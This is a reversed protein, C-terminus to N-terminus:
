WSAWTILLIRKARYDFMSHLNGDLDPLTFDHAQLSLLADNRPSAGEGLLWVDSEASRVAPKGMLEWFASVNISGGQVFRDGKGPPTPVCVDGKCFGEPKMSWGTISATDTSSLWLENNSHSEGPGADSATASTKTLVTVMTVSRKNISGM